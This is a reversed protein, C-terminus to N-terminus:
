IFGLGEESVITLSFGSGADTCVMNNSTHDQKALLKKPTALGVRTKVDFRPAPVAAGVLLLVM